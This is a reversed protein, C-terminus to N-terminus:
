IIASLWAIAIMIFNCVGAHLNHCHATLFAAVAAVAVAVVVFPLVPVSM